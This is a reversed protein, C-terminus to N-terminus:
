QIMQNIGMKRTARGGERLRPKRLVYKPPESCEEWPVTAMSEFSPRRLSRSHSGATRRIGNERSFHLPLRSMVPVRKCVSATTCSAAYILWLVMAGRLGSIIYRRAPMALLYFHPSLPSRPPAELYALRSRGNGSSVKEDIRRSHRHTAPPGLDM